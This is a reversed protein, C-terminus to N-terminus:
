ACGTMTWMFKRPWIYVKSEGNFIERLLIETSWQLADSYEPHQKREWVCREDLTYRRAAYIQLSFEPRKRFLCFNANFIPFRASSLLCWVWKNMKDGTFKCLHSKWLCLHRLITTRLNWFLRWASCQLNRSAPSFSRFVSPHESLHKEAISNFRLPFDVANRPHRPSSWFIRPARKPFQLLPEYIACCLEDKGCHTSSMSDIKEHKRRKQEEDHLLHKLLLLSRPFKRRMQYCSFISVALPRRALLKAESM